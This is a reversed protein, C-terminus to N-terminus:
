SLRFLQQCEGEEKLKSRKIFVKYEREVSGSDDFGIFELMKEKGNSLTVVDVGPDWTRFAKVMEKTVWRGIWKKEIITHMMISGDPMGHFMLFGILKGKKGIPWFTSEAFYDRWPEWEDTTDGSEIAIEWAKRLNSNDLMTAPKETMM